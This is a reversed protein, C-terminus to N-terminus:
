RLVARPSLQLFETRQQETLKHIASHALAIKGTKSNISWDIESAPVALAEALATVVSNKARNEDVVSSFVDDNPQNSHEACARVVRILVPEAKGLPDVELELACGCTDPHWLVSARDASTM